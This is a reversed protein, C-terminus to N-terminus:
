ALFPALISNSKGRSVRDQFTHKKKQTELRRPTLSTHSARNAVERLRYATSPVLEVIHKKVPKLIRLSM